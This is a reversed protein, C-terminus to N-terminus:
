PTVGQEEQDSFQDPEELGPAGTASVNQPRGAYIHTVV